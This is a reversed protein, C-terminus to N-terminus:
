LSASTSATVEPLALNKRPVSEAGWAWGVLPDERMHKVIEELSRDGNRAPDKIQECIEGLSLGEWAMEAPALHWHPAGPVRGPDFNASHHCASCRLGPAGFGDAGRQVWPEHKESKDGQMPEDGAPHCNVCRPHMLVKGAETFLSAAKADGEVSAFSAARSLRGDGLDEPEGACGLTAALLACLALHVLSFSRADQRSM